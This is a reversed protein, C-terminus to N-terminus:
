IYAISCMHLEGQLRSFPIEDDSECAGSDDEGDERMWDEVPLDDPQCQGAHAPQRTSKM